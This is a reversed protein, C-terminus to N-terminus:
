CIARFTCPALEDLIPNRFLGLEIAAIPFTPHKHWRTPTKKTDVRTIQFFKLLDDWDWHLNRPFQVAILLRPKKCFLLCISVDIHKSLRNTQPHILKITSPYTPLQTRRAIDYTMASLQM